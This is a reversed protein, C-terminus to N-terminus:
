VSACIYGLSSEYLSFHYVGRSRLCPFRSRLCFCVLWDAEWASRKGEDAARCYACVKQLVFRLLTFGSVPKPVCRGYARSCLRGLVGCNDWPCRQGSVFEACAWQCIYRMEVLAFPAHGLQVDYAWWPGPQMTRGEYVQAHLLVQSLGINAFHWLHLLDEKMM